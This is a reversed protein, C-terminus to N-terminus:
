DQLINYVRSEIFQSFRRINDLLKLPYKQEFEIMLTGISPIERRNNVLIDIVKEYKELKETDFTSLDFDFTFYEKVAWEVEKHYETEQNTKESISKDVHEKLEQLIIELEM